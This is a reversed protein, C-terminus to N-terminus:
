SDNFGTSGSIRSNLQFIATNCLRSSYALVQSELIRLPLPDHSSEHSKLFCPVEGGPYPGRVFCM